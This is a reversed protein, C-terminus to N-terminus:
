EPYKVYTSDYYKVKQTQNVESLMMDELNMRTPSHLIKKKRKLTAYYELTYLHWM